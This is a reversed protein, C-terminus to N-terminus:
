QIWSSFTALKRRYFKGEMSSVNVVFRCDDGLVTDANAGHVTSAAGPGHGKYAEGGKWAHSEDKRRKVQIDRNQDIQSVTGEQHGRDHGGKRSLNTTSVVTDTSMEELGNMEMITSALSQVKSGAITIDNTISTSSIAVTTAGSSDRSSPDPTHATGSSASTTGSRHSQGRIMLPKLRAILIFPSISNITFVEVLEPTSVEHMCLLWSNRSRLDVQQENGDRVSAPFLQRHAESMVDDPIMPLQSLAASTHASASSTSPATDNNM